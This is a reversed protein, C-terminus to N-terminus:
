NGSNFIYTHTYVYTCIGKQEDKKKKQKKQKDQGSLRIPYIIRYDSKQSM